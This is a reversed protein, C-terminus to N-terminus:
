AKIVLLLPFTRKGLLLLLLLTRIDPLLARVLLRLWTRIVLMM